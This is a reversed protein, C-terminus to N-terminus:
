NIEVKTNLEYVTGAPIVIDGEATHVTKEEVVTLTSNEGVTLYLNVGYGAKVQTRLRQGAANYFHTPQLSGLPAQQGDSKTVEGLLQSKVADGDKSINVKIKSAAGITFYEGILTEADFVPADSATVESFGIEYYARKSPTETVLETMFLGDYDGYVANAVVGPIAAINEECAFEFTGKSNQLSVASVTQYIDEPAFGIYLMDSDKLGALSKIGEYNVSYDSNNTEEMTLKANENRGTVDAKNTSIYVDAKLSAASKGVTLEKAAATGVAVSIKGAEKNATVANDKGAVPTGGTIAVADRADKALVTVTLTDSDDKLYLTDINKLSRIYTTDAGQSSIILFADNEGANESETKCAADTYVPSIVYNADMIEPGDKYYNYAYTHVMETSGGAIDTQNDLFKNKTFDIKADDIYYTVAIGYQDFTNGTVVFEGDHMRSTIGTNNGIDGTFGGDATYTNTFQNDKITVNGSLIDPMVCAFAGSVTNNEFTFRKTKSADSLILNPVIEKAPTIFDLNQITIDSNEPLTLAGNVTVTKRTGTSEYTGDALTIGNEIVINTVNNKALAAKFETETKVKETVVTNKGFDLDSIDVRVEQESYKTGEGDFDVAFIIDTTKTNSTVYFVRTYTRDDETFKTYTVESDEGGHSSVVVADEPASLSSPLAYTLALFYGDKNLGPFKEYDHVYNLEGIARFERESKTTAVSVNKMLESADKGYGCIDKGKAAEVYGYRGEKREWGAYLTISKIVVSSMNALNSEDLADAGDKSYYWGTFTYDTRTPDNPRKLRLESGRNYSINYPNSSSGFKGGNPNYTVTYTTTSSGGGGGGGGSSGGGGNIIGGSNNNNNNNNNGSNNKNPASTSAISAGTTNVAADSSLDLLQGNIVTGSNFNARGTVSPSIVAGGLTVGSFTASDKVIAIKDGYDGSYSEESGDAYVAVMNNVITVIEARTIADAPRFSGDSGQIYGRSAMLAVANEAWDGVLGRDNFQNLVSTDAGDTELGFARAIMVAAEQRSINAGPRITGDEYGTIVGAAYLRSVAYAFWDDKGVDSFVKNSQKQYGIMNDLITATEARTVSDNPRFNGQDDGKVVGHGSWTGIAVQAWHGATDPFDKAMVPVATTGLMAAALVGSLLKKKMSM